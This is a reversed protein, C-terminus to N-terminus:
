KGGKQIRKDIDVLKTNAERNRDDSRDPIMEMLVLLERRAEEWQGLNIARDARFRQERYRSDLEAMSRALGERAEAACEPKPEVTELYFNAEKYAVISAALHGYGVDRDEWKTRGLAIAETALEILKERSYQIAWIGLEDKSFTELKERIIRFANPEQTNTITITRVRHSYVLRLTWSTLAPPDPEMGAYERDLDKVADWPIMNSLEKLANEGLPKSKNVHRNASPVDDLSVMLIGDSNLSLEYRFIGKCDAEIKEYWVEKLTPVEETIATTSDTSEKSTTLVLYMAASVLLISFGWLISLVPSRRKRDTDIPTSESKDGFGLDVVPADPKPEGVVKVVTKGVEIVDGEKLETPENGLLSGNLYTGNASALDTVRIGYDGVIEFLCHNRSLEEDPVHIDNSSSRGLRLGGPKVEFRKGSLGGSALQLELRKAM